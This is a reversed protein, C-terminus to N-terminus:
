KTKQIIPFAQEFLVVEKDDKKSSDGKAQDISSRCDSQPAHKPKAQSRREVPHQVGDKMVDQEVLPQLHLGRLPRVELPDDVGVPGVMGPLVVLPVRPRVTEQPGTSLVFRGALGLVAPTGSIKALLANIFQREYFSETGKNVVADIQLAAPDFVDVSYSGEKLM